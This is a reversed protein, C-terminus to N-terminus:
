MRITQTSRTTSGSSLRATITKVVAQPPIEVIGQLRKYQQVTVSQPGEALAMQWPKGDLTGALTLEMVGNFAPANKASQIVLVQWRLKQPEVMEAQLGRIGLSDNGSVPLLREFFGLDDRLAANEAELEKIKSVLSAQAARETTLQSGATSAVAQADLLEARLRNAQERLELMEESTQRDLGAIDRGFEFAWLGIAACFGFVLAFLVWRLPWPLASRVAVRPASITLRRRLLRLRM